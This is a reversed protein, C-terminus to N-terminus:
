ADSRKSIASHLMSFAPWCAPRNGRSVQAAGHRVHGGADPRSLRRPLHHDQLARQAFAAPGAQDGSRQGRGGLQLFIGARRLEARLADAGVAGPGRYVLHETCSDAHGSAGARGARGARPLPRAFQLGLRSLFGLYRNGDSDWVHSGAGRVLVVPYRAYNPIVYKRFQELTEERLSLCHCDNTTRRMSLIDFTWHCTFIRSHRFTALRAENEDQM